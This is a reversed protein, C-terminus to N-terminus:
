SLGHEHTVPHLGISLIFLLPLSCSRRGFSYELVLIHYPSPVDFMPSM